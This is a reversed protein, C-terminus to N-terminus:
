IGVAALHRPETKDVHEQYDPHKTLWSTVYPCVAVIRQGGDVDGKVDVYVTYGALTDDVRVEYAPVNEQTGSTCTSQESM